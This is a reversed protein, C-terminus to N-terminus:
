SILDKILDKVPQTLLYRETGTTNDVILYAKEKWTKISVTVKSADYNPTTWTCFIWKGLDSKVDMQMSYRNCDKTGQVSVTAKCIRDFIQAVVETKLVIKM